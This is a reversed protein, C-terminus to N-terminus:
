RRGLLRHVCGAWRSFKWHAPDLNQEWGAAWNVAPQPGAVNFLVYNCWDDVGERARVGYCFSQVSTAQLPEAALADLTSQPVYKRDVVTGLFRPQKGIARDDSHHRGDRIARRSRIKLSPQAAAVRENRLPAAAHVRM